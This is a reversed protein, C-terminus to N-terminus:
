FSGEHGVDTIRGASARPGVSRAYSSRPAAGIPTQRHVPGHWWAASPCRIWSPDDADIRVLAAVGCDRDVVVPPLLRRFGNPRCCLVMQPKELDVGPYEVVGEGVVVPVPVGIESVGGLSLFL